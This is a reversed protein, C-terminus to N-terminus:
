AREPSLRFKKMKVLPSVSRKAERKGRAKMSRAKPAEMNRKANAGPSEYEAGEASGYRAERKGRAKM